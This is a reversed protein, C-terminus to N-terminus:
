SHNFRGSGFGKSLNQGFWEWLCEPKLARPVQNMEKATESFPSAKLLILFDKEM